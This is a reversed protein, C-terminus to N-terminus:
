STFATLQGSDLFALLRDLKEAYDPNREMAYIFINSDLYIKQGLLDNVTGM